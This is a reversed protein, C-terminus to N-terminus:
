WNGNCDLMFRTLYFCILVSRQKILFQEVSLFNFFFMNSSAPEFERLMLKMVNPLFAHM